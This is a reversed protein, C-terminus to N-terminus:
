RNSQAEITLTKNLIKLKLESLRELDGSRRLYKFVVNEDSNEGDKSLGSQRYKKIKDRLQKIKQLLFESDYNEKKADAELMDICKVFFDKKRDISKLDLNFNSKQPVVLWKNTLISYIGSSAHEENIDQIYTEIDHGKINADELQKNFTQTKSDFVMRVLDINPDIKASDTVIHVDIDSFDSWNYNALSGTLIIDDTEFVDLKLTEILFNSAKILILRIEPILKIEGFDASDYNVWIDPCLTNKITFSKLIQNM